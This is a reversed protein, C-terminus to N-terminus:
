SLVPVADRECGFTRGFARLGAGNASAGGEITGVEKEFTEESIIGKRYARLLQKFEFDKNM